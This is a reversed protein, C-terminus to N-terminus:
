TGSPKRAKKNKETFFCCINIIVQIGFNYFYTSFVSKKAFFTVYIKEYPINEPSQKRRGGKGCQIKLSSDMNTGVTYTYRHAHKPTFVHIYVCVCVCMCKDASSCLM